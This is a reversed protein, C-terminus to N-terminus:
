RSAERQTPQQGNNRLLQMAKLLQADKSSRLKGASMKKLELPYVPTVKHALAVKIQPTIGKHWITHGDPTLWEQVALLLASGDSLRFEELVTGTGFTKQGVVKARHADELAGTVIEAASATGANILVVMPLRTTPEDSEVAVPRVKGKANKELLVNGGRLFESAVDVAQNLLGGPDDRLDLVMARAHHARAQRLAHHLEKATGQSFSAIRIDATHTGPLMHWSVSHVHIVARVIPVPTTHDGHPKRITLVVKTGVPGRIKRVVQELTKGRVSQHDVKVIIDGPRLGAKQAPTGDLPAVVVVRKGRMRVEAGIGAFHGQMAEHAEHVQQPTLFTTHGTDGLSDVMGSIAAYTMRQPRIASRDVYHKEILHWAEGLLRFDPKASAPISATPVADALVQRDVVIGVVFGVGVWLLAALALRPLAGRRLQNRQM